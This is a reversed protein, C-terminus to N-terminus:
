DDPYIDDPYFDPESNDSLARPAPLEVPTGDFAVRIAAGWETAEQFVAKIERGNAIMGGIWPARDATLYGIQIDNCYVAIAHPDAKNKPEPRLEVPEGPKALTIGFARTPGKANAFDRGVVHLSLAIV